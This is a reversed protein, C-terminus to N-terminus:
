AFIFNLSSDDDNWALRVKENGTDNLGLYTSSLLGNSAYTYQYSYTQPNNDQSKAGVLFLKDTSNTSGATNKTDDNNDTGWSPIGNAVKLVQGSSGIALRKPSASGDFYIIDGKATGISKPIQADNTVNGLGVTSASFSAWTPAANGNSKLYQGSSGAATSTYAGSAGGYVIGWQTPTNITATGAVTLTKSTTGGAITFGTAAATLTLNNFLTSTVNGTSPNFYFKAGSKQLGENKAATTDKNSTAFVIPYDANTTINASIAVNTVTTNGAMATTSTTGITLNSTGFTVWTGKETLAKSTSGSSTNIGLASQVNATTCSVTSAPAAGVDSYTYTPKSMAKVKVATGNLTFVTSETGWSLTPISSPAYTNGSDLIQYWDGWSTGGNRWHLGESNFALQHANGGSWDTSSAYPRFSMVGAYPDTATLDITAKAKFDFRVGQAAALDTPNLATSRTDTCKIYTATTATTASGASTAYPITYASSTKGGATITVQNANSTSTQISPNNALNTATTATDASGASDAKGKFAAAYINGEVELWAPTAGSGGMIKLGAPARYSDNPTYSIVVSQGSSYDFEIRANGTLSPDASTGQHLKIIGADLTNGKVTISTDHLLTSTAGSKVGVLCLTDATNATTAVNTAAGGASSSGAYKPLTKKTVTIVGNANQSITDIFTTSTTTSATPDSVASQVIKYSTDSGLREWTYTTGSVSTCVWEDQKTSNIVVDGQKPTYNSIGAPTGTWSHNTATGGTMDTTTVGIFRLAKSLGLSERLTSDSLSGGLSVENGAITVKSNALKANTITPIRALDFTGSNIDSAAHNHSALAFYSDAHKGSAGGGLATWAESASTKGTGGQAIPLTGWQLAGNASTAYLAGNASAKSGFKGTTDTYYAVANTTSTLNAATAKDATGTLNGIFKPATLNYYLTEATYKSVFPNRSSDPRDLHMEIQTVGTYGSSNTTDGVITLEIVSIQYKGQYARYVIQSNGSDPMVTFTLNHWGITHGSYNCYVRGSVSTPKCVYYFSILIYGYPYGPFYKNKESITTHDPDFDFTIVSTNGNTIIGTSEYSGDFLNAISSINTGTVKWRKDAAYLANDIKSIYPGRLSQPAFPNTTLLESSKKVYTSGLDPIDAAVLARFSPAGNANSPAALVYNKTKSGYPNKTDGYADKLSITTSASSGTQATSTSSQVPSTAGITVSTIGSSTVYNSTDLAWTNAATKKLLGTTDNIAEIAKLDDAGTVDSLPLNGRIKWKLNEKGLNYINDEQPVLDTAFTMTKGSHAM